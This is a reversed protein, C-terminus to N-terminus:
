LVVTGESNSWVRLAPRKDPRGTARPGFLSSLIAELNNVRSSPVIPLLKASKVPEPRCADSGPEAPLGNTSTPVDLRLCDQGRPCDNEDSDFWQQRATSACCITVEVVVVTVAGSVGPVGFIVASGKMMEHLRKSSGAQTEQSVSTTEM